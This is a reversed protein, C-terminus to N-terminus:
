PYTSHLYIYIYASSYYTLLCYELNSDAFHFLMEGDNTAMNLSLIMLIM